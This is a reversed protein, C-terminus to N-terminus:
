NSLRQPDQPLFEPFRYVAHGRPIDYDPVANGARVCEELGAQAHTLPVNLEMAAMAVTLVGDHDKALKLIRVPLLPDIVVRGSEMSNVRKKGRMGRTAALAKRFAGRLEPGALVWAGAVFLVGGVLYAEVQVPFLPSLGVFISAVSLGLLTYGVIDTTKKM